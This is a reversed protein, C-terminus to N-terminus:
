KILEKPLSFRDDVQQVATMARHISKRGLRLEPVLSFMDEIAPAWRMEYLPVSIKTATQLFSKMSRQVDQKSVAALHFESSHNPNYLGQLFQDFSQSAEAWDLAVCRPPDSMSFRALIVSGLKGEALIDAGFLEAAQMPFLAVKKYISWLRGEDALTDRHAQPFAGALEIIAAISGLSVKFFSPWGRVTISGDSRTFLVATDNCVKRANFTSLLRALGTTKGAGKNGILLIVRGDVEVGSAHIFIAGESQLEVAVIDEIIRLLPVKLCDETFGYVAIARAFRDVSVITGFPMLKLWSIQGDQVKHASCHLFSGSDDIRILPSDKFSPAHDPKKGLFVRVDARREEVIKEVWLFYPQFYERMFKEVENFNSEFTINIAIDDYHLSFEKNM